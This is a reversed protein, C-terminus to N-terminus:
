HSMITVMIGVYRHSDSGHYHPLWFCVLFYTELRQQAPVILQIEYVRLSHAASSRHESSFSRESGTKFGQFSLQAHQKKHGVATLSVPRFVVIGVNQHLIQILVWFTTYSSNTQLPKSVNLCKLIPTHTM